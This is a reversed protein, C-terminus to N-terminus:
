ATVSEDERARARARPRFAALSLEEAHSHHAHEKRAVCYLHWVGIIQDAAWSAKESLTLPIPHNREVQFPSQNREVNSVAANVQKQYEPLQELAIRRVTKLRDDLSEPNFGSFVHSILKYLQWQSEIHDEITLDAVKKASIGKLTEMAPSHVFSGSLTPTKHLCSGVRMSWSVCQKLDRQQSDLCDALNCLGFLVRSGFEVFEESERFGVLHFTKNKFSDQGLGSFCRGDMKVAADIFDEEYEVAFHKDLEQQITKIKQVAAVKDDHSISDDYALRPVIEKIGHTMWALETLVPNKSGTSFGTRGGSAEAWYDFFKALLEPQKGFRTKTEITQRATKRARDHAHHIGSPLEREMKDCLEMWSLSHSWTASTAKLIGEFLAKCELVIVGLEDENGEIHPRGYVLNVFQNLFETHAPPSLRDLIKLHEFNNGLSRLVDNFIKARSQDEPLAYVFAKTWGQAHSAFDRGLRSEFSFVIHELEQEVEDCELVSLDSKAFQQILVTAWDLFLEHKYSSLLRDTNQISLAHQQPTLRVDRSTRKGRASASHEMARTERNVQVEKLSDMFLDFIALLTHVRGSKDTEDWESDSNPDGAVDSFKHCQTEFKNKVAHLAEEIPFGPPMSRGIASALCHEVQQACHDYRDVLHRNAQLVEEVISRMKRVTAAVIMQQVPETSETRLVMQVCNRIVKALWHIYDFSEFKSDDFFDWTINKLAQVIRQEGLKANQLAKSVLGEIQHQLARRKTPLSSAFLRVLETQSNGAQLWQQAIESLSSDLLGVIGLLRDVGLDAVIEHCERLIQIVVRILFNLEDDGHQSSSAPLYAIYTQWVVDVDFAHRWNTNAKSLHDKLAKRVEDRSLDNDLSTLLADRVLDYDRAVLKHNATLTHYAEIYPDLLRNINQADTLIHRKTLKVLVDQLWQDREFMMRTTNQESADSLREYVWWTDQLAELWHRLISEIYHGSRAWEETSEFTPKGLKFKVCNKVRDRLSDNGPLSDGFADIYSQMHAGVHTSMIFAEQQTELVVNHINAINFDAVEAGRLFTEVLNLQSSLDRRDVSNAAKVHGSLELQDIVRGLAVSGRAPHAFGKITLLKNLVQVEWRIKNLTTKSDLYADWIRLLANQFLWRDVTQSSKARHHLEDNKEKQVTATIEQRLKPSAPRFVTMATEELKIVADNLGHKEAHDFLIGGIAADIASQLTDTTFDVTTHRPDQRPQCNETSWQPRLAIRADM